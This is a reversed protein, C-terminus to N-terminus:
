YFLYGIFLNKGDPSWEWADVNGEGPERIVLPTAEGSQQDIRYIGQRGKKDTGNMVALSCAKEMFLMSPCNRSIMGLSRRKATDSVRM